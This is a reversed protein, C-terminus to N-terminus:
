NDFYGSYKGDRDGTLEQDGREVRLYVGRAAESVEELVMLIDEDTGDQTEEELREELKKHLIAAGQKYKELQNQAEMLDMMIETLSVEGDPGDIKLQKAINNITAEDLQDFNSDGTGSPAIDAEMELKPKIATM